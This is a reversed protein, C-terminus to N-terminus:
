IVKGIKLDGLRINTYNKLDQSNCWVGRHIEFSFKANVRICKKMRKSIFILFKFYM